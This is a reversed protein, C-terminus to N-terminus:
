KIENDSKEKKLSKLASVYGAFFGFLAVCGIFTLMLIGVWYLIPDSNLFVKGGVKIRIAKEQISDPLWFGLILFVACLDILPHGSSCRTRKYSRFLAKIYL